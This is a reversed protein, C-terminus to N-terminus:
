RRGAQKMAFDCEPCRQLSADALPKGCGGCPPHKERFRTRAQKVIQLGLFEDDDMQGPPSWFGASAAPEVTEALYGIWLYYGPSLTRFNPIKALMAEGNAATAALREIREREPLFFAEELLESAAIRLGAFDQAVYIGQECIM